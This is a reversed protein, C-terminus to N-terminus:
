RRDSEVVKLGQDVRKIVGQRERDSKVAGKLYWGRLMVGHLV